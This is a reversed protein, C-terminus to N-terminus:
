RLWDAVRTFDESSLGFRDAFEEPSLWQHYNASAPDQQEALLGDLDAEQAETPKFALTMREMPMSDEAPGRDFENRALPHVNGRVIADTRTTIRRPFRSREASQQAFFYTGSFCLLLSFAKFRRSSM